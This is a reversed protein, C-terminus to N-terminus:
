NYKRRQKRIEERKQFYKQLSNLEDVRESVKRCIKLKILQCDKYEKIKKERFTSIKQKFM